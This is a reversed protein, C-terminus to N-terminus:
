SARERAREFALKAAPRTLVGVIKRRYEAPARQDDIPRAASRAASEARALAEPEGASGVLASAAEPCLLVTPGVAGLAVRAAVCRGREDLSVCVGAGAVAIDMETRPIFRLYADASRPAPAPIRLRVLFEGPGLATKGPGKVFDEVALERLAGNPGAIECRAGVAVLAPVTDAAPSANCLNGGVSARGQIQDSGILGIAEALGPFQRALRPDERVAAACQAAGLELSGDAGWRLQTLEPVHKVDILTQPAIRASQMQVLLDTGGALIRGQAGARALAAAADQISHPAEYRAESM